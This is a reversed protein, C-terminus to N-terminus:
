YSYNEIRKRNRKGILVPAAGVAGTDVWDTNPVVEIDWRGSTNTKKKGSPKIAPKLEKQRIGRIIEGDIFEIDYRGDKYGIVSGNFNYINRIKEGVAYLQLDDSSCSSDSSDSEYRESAQTKDVVVSDRSSSYNDVCDEEDSIDSLQITKHRKRLNKIRRGKNKRRSIMSSATEFQNDVEASSM